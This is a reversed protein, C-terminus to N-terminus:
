QDAGPLPKTGDIVLAVMRSIPAPAAVAKAGGKADGGKGAGGGNGGGGMPGGAFVVYQKGEILYTMPPGIQNLGTPLDLLQEGTDARYVLLHSQGQVPTSSFVLNGATSLTGGSNFGASGNMARWRESQTVPDWASLMSGRGSPGITPIFPGPAGKAAGKDGGKGAGGKAAGAVAAATADLGPALGGKAAGAKAKAKGTGMNFQGKGDVGINTSVAEYEPNAIYNYGTGITSPIYVLGTNPNFSMPPWVHGGGPGPMVNVGDEGYLAEPNVIPRGTRKDIGSSWSVTVWPEASILEGTRRDLVYFFGNKPAHMLVSRKRGDITLDALVIDAISDYDWNDGPTTQYHWLYKGTAGRVAIICNTCLADGKGRSLDTWTAPQGTGVYVTDSDPDYAFGNWVPGGGGVEWWKKSADWSKAWDALEPQEFPKSPDGPVTFYRWAIAGTTADVAVFMGRVGYEGGSLGVIVKGGKIVRPAMTITYPQTEPAVRTDWVVRGSVADYARLRGDVVPALIKGEFMAIGRNVVGCCIRSQWVAQNVDPNAQWALKGSRADVAYVVSWPGISYLKGDYMLPTGEHRTTQTGAAAPIDMTWALGLRSVNSANVQFLPSYRQEAWNLGPTIWEDGTKGADRLMDDNVQRAQQAVLWGTMVFTALSTATLAFRSTRFM